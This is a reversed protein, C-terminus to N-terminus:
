QTSNVLNQTVNLQEGHLSLFYAVFALKLPAIIFYPLFEIVNEFASLDNSYM